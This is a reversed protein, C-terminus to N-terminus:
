PPATGTSRQNLAIVKQRLHHQRLRRASSLVEQKQCALMRLSVNWDSLSRMRSLVTGLGGLGRLDQRRSDAHHFGFCLFSATEGSGLEISAIDSWPVFSVRKRIDTVGDEDLILVPGRHRWPHLVSPLMPLLLPLGFLAAVAAIIVGLGQGSLLGALMWYGLWGLALVFLATAPVYVLPSYHIEIRTSEPRTRAAQTMGKDIALKDM